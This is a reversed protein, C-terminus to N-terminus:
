HTAVPKKKIKEYIFKKIREQSAGSFYLIYVIGYLFQLRWHGYTEYDRASVLVDKGIVKFDGKRSIRQILDYEEMFVMSEDYGNFQHYLEKKIWLTQGGGRFLMGDFRTCYSCIRLMFSKTTFKSRFCGASYGSAIANKVDLLFEQPPLSDAHIFHLIDGSATEAAVNMQKARGKQASLVNVPYKSVIELTQDSSGADSLIVEQLLSESETASFIRDLLSAIRKEENFVPIIISIKM